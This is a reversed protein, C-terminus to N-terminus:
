TSKKLCTGLYTKRAESSLKDQTAQNNCVKMLTTQNMKGGLCASMYSKRADGSLNREGAEANCSAMRQQQQAQAPTPPKANQALAPTGALALGLYCLCIFRPM